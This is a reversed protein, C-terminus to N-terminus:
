RPGAVGPEVIPPVDDLPRGLIPIAIRKPKVHGEALIPSGCPAHHCGRNSSIADLDAAVLEWACAVGQHADRGRVTNECGFRGALWENKLWITGLNGYAQAMGEKRGLKKETELKKKYAAEAQELETLSRPPIQSM